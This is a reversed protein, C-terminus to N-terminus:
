RTFLDCQYALVIAPARDGGRAEAVGPHCTDESHLRRPQVHDPDPGQGLQDAALIRRIAELGDLEPMRIHMIVV